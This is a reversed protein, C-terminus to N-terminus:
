FTFNLRAFLYRGSYGFQSTRRSYVFQDGSTSGPRNEDPYVDFLNNSGITILFKETAQYGISLDTLLKGGYVTLMENGDADKDNWSDPDTVEGFYVLRLMFSFKQVEFIETLNIKMRPRAAELFLKERPGFYTDAKLKLKDSTKVEGVQETKSFTGSLNSKLMMKGM